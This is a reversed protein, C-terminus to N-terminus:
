PKVGILQNRLTPKLTDGSLWIATFALSFITSTVSGIYKNNYFFHSMGKSDVNLLLSDNKSIEPWFTKLTILWEQQYSLNQRQWEEETKNLLEQQTIDRAYVLELSLPWQGSHYLGSPTLLKVQYIDFWLWSMTGQGVLTFQTEPNPNNAQNNAAFCDVSLQSFYLTILITLLSCHKNM